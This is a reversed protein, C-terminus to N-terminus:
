PNFCGTLPNWKSLVPVLGCNLAPGSATVLPPSYTGAVGSGVPQGAVNQLTGAPCPLAVPTGAATTQGTFCMVVVGPISTGNPSVYVFSSNYQGFVAQGTPGRFLQILDGSQPVTLQQLANQTALSGLSNQVGSQASAAAVTGLMFVLTLFLRKM